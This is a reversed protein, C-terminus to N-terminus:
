LTRGLSKAAKCQGCTLADATYLRTLQYIKLFAESQPLSPTVNLSLRQPVDFVHGEANAKQQEPCCVKVSDCFLVSFQVSINL